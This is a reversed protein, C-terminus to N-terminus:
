KRHQLPVVQGSNQHSTNPSPKKLKQAAQRAQQGSSAARTRSSGSRNEDQDSGNSSAPEKKGVRCREYLEEIEDERIKQSRGCQIILGNAKAVERLAEKPFGTHSALKDFTWLKIPM